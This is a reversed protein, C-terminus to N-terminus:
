VGVGLPPQASTFFTSFFSYSFVFKSFTVDVFFDHYYILDAWVESPASRSVSSALVCNTDILDYLKSRRFYLNYIPRGYRYGENIRGNEVEFYCEIQRLRMYNFASDDIYYLKDTLSRIRKDCMDYSQTAYIFDIGFKRHLSFFFKLNDGFSKFNRSDAFLQVEDVLILCNKYDAIGLLEFDLKRAGKFPFNTYVHSYKDFHTFYNGRFSVSQGRLARYALYGLFLSKGSGPLGFVGTIM